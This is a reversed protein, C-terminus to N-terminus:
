SQAKLVEQMFRPEPLAGTFEVRDNIVTKPVAQVHYRQALDIFESAEIVDATIHVNEIALQHAM